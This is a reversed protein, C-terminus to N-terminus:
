VLLRRCEGAIRAGFDAWRNGHAWQIAKQGVEYCYEPTLSYLYNVWDDINLDLKAGYVPYEPPIAQPSCVLLRGTAYTEYIINSVGESLSPLIVANVKNYYDNVRDKLVPGYYACNGPPDFEVIKKGVVVYDLDPTREMLKVLFETSKEVSLRGIYGVTMKSPYSKPYFMGTDVGLGIPRAIKEPNVGFDRIITYYSENIPIHRDYTRWAYDDLYEGIINSGLTKLYKRELKGYGRMRHVVPAGKHKGLLTHFYEMGGSGSYGLVVDYPHRSCTKAFDNFIYISYLALLSSRILRPVVGYRRPKEKAKELDKYIVMDVNLGDYSQPYFGRIVPIFLGDCNDSIAKFQDLYRKWHYDDMNSFPICIIM